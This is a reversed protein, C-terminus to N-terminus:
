RKRYQVKCEGHALHRREIWLSMCLDLALWTQHEKRNKTSNIWPNSAPVILSFLFIPIFLFLASSSPRFSYICKRNHASLFDFWLIVAMTIFPLFASIYHRVSKQDNFTSCPKAIQARRLEDIYQGIQFRISRSVSELFEPSFFQIPYKFHITVHRMWECSTRKASLLCVACLPFLSLENKKEMDSRVNM